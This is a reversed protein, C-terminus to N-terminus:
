GPAIGHWDDRVIPPVTSIFRVSSRARPCVLDLRRTVDVEARELAFDGPLHMTIRSGPLLTAGLSLSAGRGVLRKVVIADNGKCIVEVLGHDFTVVADAAGRDDGPILVLSQEPAQSDNVVVLFKENYDALFGPFYSHEDTTNAIDLRVIVPRGIHRELLPEYARAGLDLIAGGVDSVQKQRDALAAVPKKSATSLQGLVLGITDVLADRVIGGITGLRRRMRHGRTPHLVRRMQRDRSRREEPTLAYTNRCVGFMQSVEPTFLVAGAESLNRDDVHPADFFLEFGQSSLRMRGWMASGAPGIFSVHYGDLWELCLDKRLRKVLAGLLALCFLAVIIWILSGM